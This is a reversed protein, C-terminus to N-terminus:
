IGATNLPVKLRHAHFVKMISFHLHSNCNHECTGVVLDGTNIHITHALPALPNYDSEIIVDRFVGLKTNTANIYSDSAAKLHAETEHISRKSMSGQIRDQM